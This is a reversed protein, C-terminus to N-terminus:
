GGTGRHTVLVPDGLGEQITRLSLATQIAEARTSLNM